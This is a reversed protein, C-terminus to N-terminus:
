NPRCSHCPCPLAWRGSKVQPESVLWRDSNRSRFLTVGAHGPRDLCFAPRRPGPVRASEGPKGPKGPKPKRQCEAIAGAGLKCIEDNVLAHGFGTKNSKARRERHHSMNGVWKSALHKSAMQRLACSVRARAEVRVREYWKLECPGRNTPANGSQSRRKGSVPMAMMGRAECQARVSSPKASFQAECQGRVTERRSATAPRARRQLMRRFERRAHCPIAAQRAEDGRERRETPGRRPLNTAHKARAPVVVRARSDTM